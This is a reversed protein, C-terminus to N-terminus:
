AGEPEEQDWAAGDCLVHLGDPMRGAHLHMGHAQGERTHFLYKRTGDTAQSVRELTLTVAPAEESLAAQLGRPLNTAERWDRVLSGTLAKYVQRIRYSPENREELVALVDPLFEAVNM